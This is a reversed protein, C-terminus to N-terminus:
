GTDTQQFLFLCFNIFLEHSFKLWLSDPNDIKVTKGIFFSSKKFLIKICM